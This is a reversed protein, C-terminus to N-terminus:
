AESPKSGHDEQDWGRTYSSIVPTCWRASNNTLIPTEQVKQRLQGQVAIRRIEAVWVLIEPIFWQCRAEFQIRKKKKKKITTNPPPVHHWKCLNKCYILYIMSSNVGEM